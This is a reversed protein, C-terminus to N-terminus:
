EGELNELKFLEKTIIKCNEALQGLTCTIVDLDVPLGMKTEMFDIYLVNSESVEHMGQLKQFIAYARERHNGIFFKGFCELGKVTKMTITIYFQTEM